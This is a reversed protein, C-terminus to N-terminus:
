AEIQKQLWELLRPNWGAPNIIPDITTAVSALDQSLHRLRRILGQWVEREHQSAMLRLDKRDMEVYATMFTLMRKVERDLVAFRERPRADRPPEKGSAKLRRRILVRTSDVPIGEEIVMQAFSLQDKPELKAVQLAIDMPLVTKRRLKRGDENRLDDIATDMLKLVQLDLRSLTVYSSVWAVTKGAMEAISEYSHGDGLLRNIVRVTDLTTLDDRNFNEVVADVFNSQENVPVPRIEARIMVGAERCARTRREGATLQVDYEPHTIPYVLIATKQGARKIGRALHGINRFVTRPQGTMFMVRRPDLWVTKGVHDWANFSCPIPPCAPNLRARVDLPDFCTESLLM